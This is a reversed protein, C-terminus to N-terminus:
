KNQMRIRIEVSPFSIEGIISANYGKRKLEELCRSATDEPIVGLLGGSTQPDYLMSLLQSSTSEDRKVFSEYSKWNSAFLSSKVESYSHLIEEIGDLFPLSDLNINASKQSARLITLLHGALGYGSIDTIARVRFEKMVEMASFNSKLMSEIATEVWSAKSLNRMDMAFILGTGLPKTLILKDGERCFEKNLESGADVLGMCSLGITFEKGENTHGGILKCEEKQLVSTIGTLVRVLEDESESELMEPLTVLAMASDPTAGLAYLDNLCHNATIKAAIFSDNIIPKFFDISQVVHKGPPISIVASDDRKDNGIIVRSSSHIRMQNKVIKSIRDIIPEQEDSDLYKSNKVRDLSRQLVNSGIKSGCGMCKLTDEQKEPSSGMSKKPPLNKFTEMFSRDIKDKWYWIWGAPSFIFRDRKAIARGDGVSLLSLFSKQPKYKLLTKAQSRRIINEYLIPAQRVAYVGSKELNMGEISAIDGAAFIDENSISQLHTNVALFGKENKSLPCDLIWKPPSASTTFVLFNVEITTGSECTMQIKHMSDRLKQVRSVKENCHLVISKDILTTRVIERSKLPSNELIDSSNHFLHIEPQKSSQKFKERLSFAVEIGGAGGGVVAIKAHDQFKTVFESFADLRQLFLHIPKVGTVVDRDGSISLNPSSGIDISLIDYSIPPSQKLTVQKGLPDIGIGTDQIFKAGVFTCLHRLNMHCDEYSYQGSILGPVMGSYPTMSHPSVLTVQTSARPKMGMKKLVLAHSHGGGLLLIKM